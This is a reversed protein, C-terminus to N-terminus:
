KVITKVTTGDAYKIINVGKQASSIKQGQLTYRGIIEKESSTEATNIGTPDAYVFNVTVEPGYAKFTYNTPGLMSDEFDMIRLKFTAVCTGYSTPIFETFLDHLENAELYGNESTDSGTTKYNTCNRPFCFSLVGNEMQSITLDMSVGVMGDTTNKVYLGTSIYPDTYGNDTLETRTLTAGNEIVNGQEDVFQLTNDIEDQASATLAFVSVAFLLVFKFKRKM